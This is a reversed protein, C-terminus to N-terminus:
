QLGSFMGTAYTMIVFLFMTATIIIRNQSAKLMNALIVINFLILVQNLREYEYNGGQMFIAPACFNTYFLFLQPSTLRDRLLLFLAIAFNILLFPYRFDGGIVRTGGPVILYSSVYSITLFGCIAFFILNLRTRGLYKTQILAFILIGCFFLGSNHALMSLVIFVIPIKDTKYARALAFTLFSAMIAQRMGNSVGMIIPWTHLCLTVSLLLVLRREKLFIDFLYLNSISYLTSTVLVGLHIQNITLTALLFGLNDKIQTLVVFNERQGYFGRYDTGYGYLGLHHAISYQVCVVFTLTFFLKNKTITYNSNM